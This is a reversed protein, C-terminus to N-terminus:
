EEKIQIVANPFLGENELTSNKYNELNKPPFGPVILDFDSADPEMFIERGISKVFNYLSSVKDTKLFKREINKEGDPLRFMIHCIDPNNEEPEQSLIMKAFEAENEYDKNIKKIRNEEELIKKKEETEKKEKEEQIKELRRIEEERKAFIQGDSLGYISDALINDKKDSSNRNNKQLM